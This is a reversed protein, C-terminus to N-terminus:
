RAWISPHRRHTASSNKSFTKTSLDTVQTCPKKVDRTELQRVKATRAGLDNANGSLGRVKEELDDMRQTTEADTWEEVHEQLKSLKEMAEDKVTKLEAKNQNELEAKMSQMDIRSGDAQNIMLSKMDDAKAMESRVRKIEEQFEAVMTAKHANILKTVADEQEPTLAM